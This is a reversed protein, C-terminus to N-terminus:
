ATDPKGRVTSITSRLVKVVTDKAIEVDIEDEGDRAKAVKGIIGSSLIVNDGRKISAVMEKHQKARAQQPRILLVYFIVFMALLPVIQILMDTAAPAGQAYAPSIFMQLVEDFASVRPSILKVRVFVCNFGLGL